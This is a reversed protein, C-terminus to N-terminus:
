KSTATVTVEIDTTTNGRAVTVTITDGPKASRIRAIADTPSQITHGDMAVVRDGPKLGAKDAPSGAVVDAIVAGGSRPTNNAFQVGLFAYQVPRGDVLADAVEKAIDIPIAFGVGENGGSASQIADNIGIVRGGRDALAGGSNGPNIPADTQIMGVAGALTDVPRDIASVVGSTVTQDLGFPSGIAVALQGVVLPVGTALTAPPLADSPLGKTDAQVVAVDFEPSTGVVTGNV